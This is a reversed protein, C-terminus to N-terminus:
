IIEKSLAILWRTALLCQNVQYYKGEYSATVPGNTIPPIELSKPDALFGEGIAKLYSEKCVFLKLRELAANKSDKIRNKEQTTFLIEESDEDVISEIPEIDIGVKSKSWAIVLLSKCHAISFNPSGQLPCYPKGKISIEIPIKRPDLSYLFGLKKRITARGLRFLAADNANKYTISRVIEEPSLFQNLHLLPDASDRIRRIDLKVPDQNIQDM